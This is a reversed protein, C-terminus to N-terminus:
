PSASVSEKHELIIRYIRGKSLGDLHELAERNLSPQENAVRLAKPIVYRKLKLAVASYSLQKCKLQRAFPRALDVLVQKYNRHLEATANGGVAGGQQLGVRTPSFNAALSITTLIRYAGEPDYEIWGKLDSLFDPRLDRYLPGLREYQQLGKEQALRAKEDRSDSTVM